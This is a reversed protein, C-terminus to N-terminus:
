GGGESRGQPHCRFCSASDYVYGSVQIHKPDMLAQSHDHCTVCSFVKYNTPVSHCDACTTWRGPPHSTGASIPFLVTHDWSSPSWATTSHCTQCDTPFAAAAHNPNATNNFDQQHCGICTKATGAYIGGAHCSACPTTTHVGTLPFSTRSHNFTSPKWAATSHCVTCDLPFSPQTHRPNVVTSYDTQHCASCQTPTNQYQGNVHCQNCAVALHAGTLAFPTKSHDFTSPVWATTSHCAQCDTPFGSTLHNPNTATNFQQQHCGVCTMATGAYIGNMHCSACATTVHAGTLPFRTTSHSFSSPKWSTVTHCATCETSFDPLVHKPSIVLNYDTQHCSVCQTPTGQYRNNQHCQTCLVAAHAGTLPFQTKSHDFSSPRWANTSHCVTCDTPFGAAAHNPNLAANFDGQHCSSCQGPTGAYVGNIHCSACPAQIHNGTLPFRTKNHDFTSPHWVMTTHCVTCDLSFSPQTHKPNLVASYQPMHCGSCQMPTGRYVGNVHCQNCPVAPHAGTLPFQTKSHDFSSPKWATTSHCDNCESSFAPPLHRPSVVKAADAQHCFVCQLPTGRFKAGAHCQICPTAAHAGTLPFATQAHNFGSGWIMATVAHCQTCETSFGSLLHPPATTADYDVRHCGFCETPVGVYENKQQNIHCAVCPTTMHAGQLPFKTGNHRQAMDPVLWTSPAHCRECLAGLEGRHVDRHCSICQPSTGTFKLDKHCKSCALGDHQGKLAFRTGDHNFKMPNALEKWSTTLHCDGCAIKMDGHPSQQAHLIPQSCFAVVLVLSSAFVSILANKIM